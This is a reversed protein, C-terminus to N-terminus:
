EGASGGFADLVLRFMSRNEANAALILWEDHSATLGFRGQGDVIQCDWHNWLCLVLSCRLEDKDGLTHLQGPMAELGETIGLGKRFYAFLEPVEGSEWVGTQTVM